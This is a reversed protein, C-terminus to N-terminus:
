VIVRESGQRALSFTRVTQNPSKNKYNNDDAMQYDFSLTTAMATQPM